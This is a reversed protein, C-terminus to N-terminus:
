RLRDASRVLKEDKRIGSIAFVLFVIVVAPLVSAPLYSGSGTVPPPTLTTELNHIHMLNVTIFSICSFIGVIVLARQRKRNKFMFLAILPIVTMVVAILLTPFHETVRWTRVTAGFGSPIDAQYVYGTYWDLFLLASIIAALFLWISQIRQIM